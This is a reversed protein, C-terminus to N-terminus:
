ILAVTPSYSKKVTSKNFLGKPDKTVETETTTKRRGQEDENIDVYSHNETTTGAADTTRSTREYTGPAMHATNQEATCASLGTVALAIALFEKKM